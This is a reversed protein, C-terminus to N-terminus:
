ASRRRLFLLLSAFGVGLMAMTSPEPVATYNYVVTAGMSGTGVLDNESNAGNPNLTTVSLTVTTLDVGFTGTGQVLSYLDDSPGFTYDATLYSPNHGPASSTDDTLNNVTKTAGSALGNLNIVKSNAQLPNNGLYEALANDIASSGFYYATKEYVSSGTGYAGSSTNLFSGSTLTSGTLIVEISTLTGLGPDFQTLNLTHNLDLTQNDYNATFTETAAKATMFSAVIASVIIAIRTM